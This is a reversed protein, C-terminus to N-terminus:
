RASGAGVHDAARSRPPSFTTSDQVGAGVVFERVAFAAVHLGVAAGLLLQEDEAKADELQREHVDVREHQLVNEGLGKPRSSVGASRRQRVGSNQICTTGYTSTLRSM